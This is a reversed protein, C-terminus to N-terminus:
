TASARTLSLRATELHDKMHQAATEPDRARIADVIARHQRNYNSIIGPELTLRRMRTWEPHGRVSNAQASIWMLLQNGTIEALKAHFMTDHGAFAAADEAESEMATLLEELEDFDAKVANLVALRCIHPELAFRVDILELPRVNGLSPGDSNGGTGAVYAGSGPRVEVLGFAVLEALARRVTGRSVSYQGALEREAPLRDHPRLQGDEIENRLASFVGVADMRRQQVSEM